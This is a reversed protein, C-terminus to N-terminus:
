GGKNEEGRGVELRKLVVTFYRYLPTYIDKDLREEGIIIAREDNEYIIRGYTRIIIDPTTREIIESQSRWTNSFDGQHDTWDIYSM